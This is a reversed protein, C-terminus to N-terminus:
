FDRRSFSTEEPAPEPGSKSWGKSQFLDDLDVNSFWQEVAEKVEFRGEAYGEEVAAQIVGTVDGHQVFDEIMKALVIVDQYACGTSALFETSEEIAWARIQQDRSAARIDAFDFM